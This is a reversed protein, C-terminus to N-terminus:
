SVEHGASKGTKSLKTVAGIWEGKEDIVVHASGYHIKGKTMKYVEEAM